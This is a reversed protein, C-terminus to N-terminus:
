GYKDRKAYKSLCPLRWIEAEERWISSSALSTMEAQSVCSYPEFLCLFAEEHLFHPELFLSAELFHPRFSDAMSIELVCPDICIFLPTKLSSSKTETTQGKM